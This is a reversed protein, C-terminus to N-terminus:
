EKHMSKDLINIAKIKLEELPHAYRMATQISKHGLIEKVVILDMKKAVM